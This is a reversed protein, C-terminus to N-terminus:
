ANNEVSLPIIKREMIKEPKFVVQYNGKRVGRGDVKLRMCRFGAKLLKGDDQEPFWHRLQELSKCGCQEGRYLGIGNDSWPTPYNDTSPNSRSNFHTLTLGGRHIPGKGDDVHQMRYIYM